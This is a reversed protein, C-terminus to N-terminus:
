SARRESLARALEAKTMKSRGEVGLESAREYLEEKSLATLDERTAGDAGRAHGNHESKTEGNGEARRRGARQMSAQLADMLDIVQPREPPPPMEIPEGEAKREILELVRERYTDHYREPEFESTLAEVLQRAMAVERESVDTEKPIEAVDEAGRVEDAFYMTELALMGDGVPRITVLYEKNRLVFRGLAVKGSERMARALLAYPKKAAKQKADPALYYTNNWYIPDIEDLAVFDEIDITSSKEPEAAKLEDTTITVVRGDDLEYGKVIDDYDVERESEETVRRYRIREGSRRDLQHFHVQKSETASYLQVPVNVLGFSISGTWVARAM